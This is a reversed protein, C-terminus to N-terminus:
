TLKWLSIVLIRVDIRSESPLRNVMLGTDNQGATTRTLDTDNQSTINFTSQAAIYDFDSTVNMFLIILLIFLSHCITHVNMYTFEVNM